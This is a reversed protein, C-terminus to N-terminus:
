GLRAPARTERAGRPRSGDLLRLDAGRGAGRSRPRRHDDAHELIARMREDSRQLGEVTMRMASAMRNFAEALEGIEDRSTYEIRHVLDGGALRQAGAILLRLTRAVRDEIALVTLVGVIAFMVLECAGALMLLRHAYEARGSAIDVALIAGVTSVLGFSSLLALTALISRRRYGVLM